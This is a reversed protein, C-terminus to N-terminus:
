IKLTQFKKEPKNVIAQPFRVGRGKKHIDSPQPYFLDQTQGRSFELLLVFFHTIRDDDDNLREALEEAELRAAPLGLHRSKV